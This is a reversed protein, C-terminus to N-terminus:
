TFRTWASEQPPIRLNVDYTEQFNRIDAGAKGILARHMDFPVAVPKCIPILAELSARTAAIAEPRGTVAVADPAPIGSTESHDGDENAVANRDPFRINCNYKKQIDHINAGGRTLLGRHHEAAICVHEMITCKLDDVVQEIRQKAAAVGEKSGSITVLTEETAPKPFSIMCGGCEDQIDRLVAAGRIVFHKHYTPDVDLSDEVTESWSKIM